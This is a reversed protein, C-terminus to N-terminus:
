QSEDIMNRLADTLRTKRDGGSEGIQKSYIINDIRWGASTRVLDITDTWNITQAGDVYTMAAPCRGGNSVVTCSGIKVSSAGEFNASFLDGTPPEMNIMTKLYRQETADADALLQAMAPSIFPAMRGRVKADPVGSSAHAQQYVAYFGSAALNMAQTDSSQDASAGASSGVCILFACLSNRINV